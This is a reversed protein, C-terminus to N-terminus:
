ILRKLGLGPYNLTKMMGNKIEFGGAVVDRALDLSGDLDIYKTNPCAFAAHLGAAISIRSEDMCGWMLDINSNRATSAIKMASFIGGCKMLKINFIGCARPATALLEADEENQLSEDAAIRSKYHEELGRMNEVEDRNFPQEVFEVNLDRTGEIFRKYGETDYGQNADARIIVSQDIRERLRLIKDIDEEASAGTKLKIIKFGRGIYEHAEEISEEVPKIGITISTPLEHHHRGLMEVLPLNRNLSMADFLAIDVAARSAPTDFMRRRLDTSIEQISDIKKGVLWNLHSGQLVAESREITEGKDPGTPSSAGLGKFGNELEIEVIINSVDSTTGKSAITYPRLLGLDERWSKVSIIRM